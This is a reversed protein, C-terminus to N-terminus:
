IVARKLKLPDTSIWLRPKIGKIIGGNTPATAMFSSKPLLPEILKISLWHSPKLIGNISPKFPTIKTSDM